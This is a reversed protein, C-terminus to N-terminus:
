AQCFATIAELGPRYGDTTDVDLTPRDLHLPTWEPEPTLTAADAHAARTPESSMRIRRRAMMTHEQTHCRVIRLEGLDMLPGLGTHWLRHQFAAEAVVAVGAALLLQLCEFFLPYTRMTLPDSEAPQFGPGHAHVMGEKIEDRIVAPCGIERAVRHALTTKGSGPQGSVIILRPLPTTTDETM